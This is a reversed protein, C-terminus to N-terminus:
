IRRSKTVEEKLKCRIETEYYRLTWGESWVSYDYTQTKPNYPNEALTAELKHALYGNRYAPSDDLEFM